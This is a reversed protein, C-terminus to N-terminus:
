ISILHLSGLINTGIVCPMTSSAARRSSLWGWLFFNSSASFNKPNLNSVMFSPGNSRGDSFPHNLISSIM